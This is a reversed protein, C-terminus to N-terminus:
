HGLHVNVAYLNGPNNIVLNNAVMHGMPCNPCNRGTFEELLAKRKQPQTSVYDQAVLNNTLFLMSILALIISKKRM